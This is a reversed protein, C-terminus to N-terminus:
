WGIEWGDYGPEVGDPLTRCLTAYDMSQDMHMLAVRAPALEAVWGLAMALDPHSPHPRVRLADRALHFAARITRAMRGM